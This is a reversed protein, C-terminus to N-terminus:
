RDSNDRVLVAMDVTPSPVSLGHSTLRLDDPLPAFFLAFAPIIFEGVWERINQLCGLVDFGVFQPENFRIALTIQSQLQAKEGDIVFDTPIEALVGGNFVAETTQEARLIRGSTGVFKWVFEANLAAIALMHHKDRNSLRHLHLLPHRSRAEAKVQYPQFGEIAKVARRDVGHLRGKGLESKFSDAKVCIPFQHQVSPTKGERKVLEEVIYDLSSRVNHVVDGAIAALKLPPERLVKLRLRGRTRDNTDVESAIAANPSGEQLYSLTEAQLRHLHNDANRLKTIVGALPHQAM